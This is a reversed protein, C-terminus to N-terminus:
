RFLVIKGSSKLEDEGKKVTVKFQYVGNELNKGDENKGNWRVSYTGNSKYSMPLSIVKNGSADTIRADIELDTKKAGIGELMIFIETNGNVKDTLSYTQLIALPGALSRQFFIRGINEAKDSVEVAFKHFGKPLRMLDAHISNRPEDFTFPVSVDDVQVRISEALIGSGKEEIRATLVPKSDEQEIRYDHIKPPSFDAVMIYAGETAIPCFFGKENRSMKVWSDKYNKPSWLGISSEKTIGSLPGLFQLRAEITNEPNFIVHYAKSLLTLEPPTILAPSEVLLAKEEDNRTSIVLDVDKIQVRNVINEKLASCIFSFSMTEGNQKINVVGAGPKPCKYSASFICKNEDVANVVPFYDSENYVVNISPTSIVPAPYRIFFVFEEATEINPVPYVIVNSPNISFSYIYPESIDSTTSTVAPFFIVRKYQSLDFTASAVLESNIKLDLIEIESKHNLFAIFPNFEESFARFSLKLLGSGLINECTGCSNSLVRGEVNFVSRYPSFATTQGQLPLKVSDSGIKKEFDLYCYKGNELSPDNLHNTLTWCRFADTFSSSRKKLVNDIADIGESKESIIEKLFKKQAPEEVGAYKEILYYFFLFSAGYHRFMTAPQTWENFVSSTLSIEPKDFFDALYATIPFCATNSAVSSNYLYEVYLSIGEDIWRQHPSLGKSSRISFSVLHQLEHALNRYFISSPQDIDRFESKMNVFLVPKQNGFFESVDMSDSYAGIKGSNLNDEINCLFIFIKDDKLGLHKPFVPSGTWSSVIPFIKTDFTEAINSFKEYANNGFIKLCSDEIFIRCRSGEYVYTAQYVSYKKESFNFLQFWNKTQGPVILKMSEAFKKQQLSFNDRASNSKRLEDMNKKQFSRLLFTGDVPIVSSELAYGSLAASFVCCILICARFFCRRICIM